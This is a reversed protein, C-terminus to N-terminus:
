KKKALAANRARTQKAKEAPTLAAVGNDVAAAQINNNTAGEIADIKEQTATAEIVALEADEDSIFDGAVAEDELPNKKKVGGYTVAEIARTTIHNKPNAFFAVVAQEDVGLMIEGFTYVGNRRTIVGQKLSHMMLLELAFTKSEYVSEIKSPETEAINLLYEKVDSIAQTSMDIGLISARNYLNEASDNLIYNMLKVKKETDSVKKASEFGARYIYFYAGPTQQGSKFDDAIENCYQMWEWDKAWSEVNLDIEMGDYIKVSSEITPVYGMKLKEIEPINEQIGKYRGNIDKAPAITAKDGKYFAKLEMRKDSPTGNTLQSAALGVTNKIM